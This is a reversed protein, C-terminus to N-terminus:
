RRHERTIGMARVDNGNSVRKKFAGCSWFVSPVAKQSEKSKKRPIAKSLIKPSKSGDRNEHLYKLLNLNGFVVAIEMLKGTSWLDTRSGAWAFFEWINEKKTSLFIYVPCAFEQEILWKLANLDGSKAAWYCFNSSQKELSTLFGHDKFWKFVGFHGKTAAVDLYWSIYTFPIKKEHLWELVHVHGGICAWYGSSESLSGNKQAWVLVEINGGLASKPITEHFDSEEYSTTLRDLGKKQAWELVHVHGAQLAALFVCFEFEVDKEEHLWRITELHGKSAAGMFIKSHYTCSILPLGWELFPIADEHISASAIGDIYVPCGYEHAWKALEFHGM